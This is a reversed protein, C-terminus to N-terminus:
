HLLRYRLPLCLVRPELGSVMEWIIESEKLNVILLLPVIVNYKEKRM